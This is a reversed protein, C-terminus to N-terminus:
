SNQIQPFPDLYQEDRTVKLYEKVMPTDFAIPLKQSVTKRRVQWRLALLFEYFDKIERRASVPLLSLDIMEDKASM